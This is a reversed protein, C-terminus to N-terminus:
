LQARQVAMWEAALLSVLGVLALLSCPLLLETAGANRWFLASYAEVVWTTPTFWGLDRLWLPMFFRPVMSGGIVSTILVLVTWLDRAQSPTRCAAAVLLSIGAAAVCAVLTIVCWAAWHTPLDVGYVLWATLFILLMQLFGQVVLFMFKGNVLVVMGGPGTMIRELIGSQREETLSVAGHMCSFLVFLFALGGAYYAIHNTAASQGTIDLREIMEGFSWGGSKGARANAGMEALGAALDARQDADLEIFQDELVGVVGGLAVDPLAEFFSKQIQGSLMAATVGHVPDSIIVIPAPGMGGIDDLRRANAPLVIGADATGKAVLAEVEARSNNGTGVIELSGGSQLATLLRVSLESQVEDAIAVRLQTPGGSTSSFIEAMVMFFLVPLLFAMFLAGRDNLLTYLMVRFM